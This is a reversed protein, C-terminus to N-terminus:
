SNVSTDIKNILEKLIKEIALSEEQKFSFSDYNIAKSDALLIGAVIAVKLPDKINHEEKVSNVYSKYISVLHELNKASTDAKLTFSTGLLDVKISNKEPM